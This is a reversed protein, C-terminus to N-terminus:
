REILYPSVSYVLLQICRRIQGGGGYGTACVQYVDPPVDEFSLDRQGCSSTETLVGQDLDTLDIEVRNFGCWKVTVSVSEGAQAPPGPVLELQSVYFRIASTWASWAGWQDRVRVRVYNTGSPLDQGLSAQILQGSARSIQRTESWVVNSFSSSRAIQVEYATIMDGDPDNGVFEITPRLDSVWAGYVPSTITATPAQNGQIWVPVPPSTYTIERDKSGVRVTQRIWFQVILEGNYIKGDNSRGDWIISAPVDSAKSFTRSWIRTGSRTTVTVQAREFTGFQYFKPMFTTTEGKFPALQRPNVRVQATAARALLTAAEARTLTRKPKFYGDPYGAIIGYKVAIAVHRVYSNSISSKDGFDLMDRAKSVTLARADDGLGIAEILDYTAEERSILRKSKLCELNTGFATNVSTRWWAWPQDSNPYFYHKGKAIGMTGRGGSMANAGKTMAIVYDYFWAGSDVDSYPWEYGQGTKCDYTDAAHATDGPWVPVLLLLALLTALSRRVM